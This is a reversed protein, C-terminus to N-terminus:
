HNQKIIDLLRAAFRDIKAKVDILCNNVRRKKKHKLRKLCFKCTEFFSKDYEMKKIEHFRMQLAETNFKEPQETYIKQLLYWDRWKLFHFALFDSLWFPYGQGITHDNLEAM